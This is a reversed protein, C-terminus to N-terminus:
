SLSKEFHAVLIELEPDVADFDRRFGALRDHLGGVLRSYVNRAKAVMFPQAM